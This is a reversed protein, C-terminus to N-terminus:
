YDCSKARAIQFLNASTFKEFVGFQVREEPERAIKNTKSFNVRAYKTWIASSIHNGICSWTYIGVIMKALSDYQM